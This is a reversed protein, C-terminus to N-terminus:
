SEKWLGLPELINENYHEIISVNKDNVEELNKIDRKLSINSCITIVLAIILILEGAIIFKFLNFKSNVTGVTLWKKFKETM